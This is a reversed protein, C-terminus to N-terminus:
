NQKNNLDVKIADIDYQKREERIMAIFKEKEVKFDVTPAGKAM